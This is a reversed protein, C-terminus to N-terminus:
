SSRHARLLREVLVAEIRGEAARAAIFFFRAGLLADKRKAIRAMAPIRLVLARFQPVEVIGSLALAFRDADEGQRVPGFEVDPLVDIELVDRDHREIEGGAARHHHAVALHDHDIVVAHPEIGALLRLHAHDAEAREAAIGQGAGISDLAVLRRSMTSSISTAVEDSRCPRTMSLSWAAEMSFFFCSPYKQHGAEDFEGAAIDSGIEAGLLVLIKQAEDGAAADIVALRGQDAPQEVFRLHQEFVLEGCEFGIRLLDARM